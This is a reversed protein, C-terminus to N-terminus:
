FYRRLVMYGVVVIIIIAVIRLGESMKDKLGEVDPPSLKKNIKKHYLEKKIEFSKEASFVNYGSGNDERSSNDSFNFDGGEKANKSDQKNKFNQIATKFKDRKEKNFFVGLPDSAFQKQMESIEVPKGEEDLFKGGHEVVISSFDLVEGMKVFHFILSQSSPHEIQFKTTHSNKGTSVKGANKVSLSSDLPFRAMETGRKIFVVSNGEISVVGQGIKKSVFIMLFFVIFFLPTLTDLIEDPVPLYQVSSGFVFWLLVLGIPFLKGYKSSKSNSFYIKYKNEEM